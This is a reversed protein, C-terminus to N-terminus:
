GDALSTEMDAIEIGDKTPSHEKPVTAAAPEGAQSAVLPKFSLATQTKMINTNYDKRKM